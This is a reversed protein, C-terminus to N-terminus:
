DELYGFPFCTNGDTMKMKDYYSTLAVKKDKLTYIQHSFSRLSTIEREIPTNTELVKKYDDHTINNKVVAKSVGKCKKTNYDLIIKQKKKILNIM